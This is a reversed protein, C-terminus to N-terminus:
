VDESPQVIFYAIVGLLPVAVMILAWLAKVQATLKRNKLNFLAFIVLGFWALILLLSFMQVLVFGFSYGFHSM